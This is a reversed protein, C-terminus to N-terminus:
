PRGSWVETSSSFVRARRLRVPVRDGARIPQVPVLARLSQSGLALRLELQQGLFLRATVELPLGSPDVMVDEARVAVTVPAPATAPADPLPLRHEGTALAGDQLEGYLLSAGGVFSAVFPTAPEAYLVEPAAVQELRGERMVAVRDALSLAEAQDHTVLVSTVGLRARLAALEARLEERLAADLNSLPEDLLLLAPEAVLARAVAVRQLQGGSLQHPRRGGLGELRVTRLVEAVRRQIEERPRRRLALPYAVNEEVTRHPFVAYSQFVMGLRRAEPPVFVGPGSVVEGSIRIEGADPIELGAVMRLATTKGCGSPGLLALLEGPAVELRDIRVVEQGGFSKRVSALQLSGAV